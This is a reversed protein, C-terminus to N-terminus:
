PSRNPEMSLRRRFGRRSPRSGESMIRGGQGLDERGEPLLGPHIDEIESRGEGDIEPEVRGHGVPDADGVEEAAFVQPYPLAPIDMYYAYTFSM